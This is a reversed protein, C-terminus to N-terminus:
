SCVNRTDRIETVRRHITKSPVEKVPYANSFAGSSKYASFNEFIFVREAPSYVMKM